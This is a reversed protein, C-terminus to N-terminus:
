NLDGAVEELENEKSESIFQRKRENELKEGGEIRDSEELKLM